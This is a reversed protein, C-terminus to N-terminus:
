AIESQGSDNTLILDARRKRAVKTGRDEAITGTPCASTCGGCGICRGLDLTVRGQEGASTAEIANTPCSDVCARCGSAADCPNQTVKPLGRSYGPLDPFLDRQTAIGGRLLQIFTKVM